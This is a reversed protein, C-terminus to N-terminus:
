HIHIKIYEFLNLLINQIDVYIIAKLLGHLILFIAVSEGISTISVFTADQM